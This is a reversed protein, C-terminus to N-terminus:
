VGLGVAAIVALALSGKMFGRFVRLTTSRRAAPAPAPAIVPSSREPRWRFRKARGAWASFDARLARWFERAAAATRSAPRGPPDAPPNRGTGGIRDDQLPTESM